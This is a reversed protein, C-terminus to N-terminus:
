YDKLYYAVISTTHSNSPILDIFRNEIESFYNFQEQLKTSQMSRFLHYDSLAVHPFYQSQALIASHLAELFAKATKVGFPHASNHQFRREFENISAQLM